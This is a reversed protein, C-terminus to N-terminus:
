REGAPGLERLTLLDGVTADGRELDQRLQLIQMAQAREKKHLAAMSAEAWKSGRAIAVQGFTHSNLEAAPRVNERPSDVRPSDLSQPELSLAAPMGGKVGLTGCM